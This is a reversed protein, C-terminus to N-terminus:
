ISEGMRLLRAPTGVDCWQGSYVEASVKGDRMAQIIPTILSFRKKAISAFLAPHYVGIGSFTYGTEGDAVAQLLGQENISFDHKEKYPPTPVLVLHALQQESLIPRLRMFPYDTWIDGNVVLFPEDGLLPLAQAVGGGTDLLTSERSYQISIGLASGDAFTQEIQDGLYHLNIVIDRFGSAALRELTHQMIPKGALNLLPKPCNAVLAGMRGGTGAALMMAKM